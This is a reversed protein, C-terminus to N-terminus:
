NSAEQSVLMTQYIPKQTENWNFIYGDFVFRKMLNPSQIEGIPVGMLTILAYFNFRLYNKIIQWLGTEIEHTLQLTIHLLCISDFRHHHHTRCIKCHYDLCISQCEHNWQLRCGFFCERWHDCQDYSSLTAIFMYFILKILKILKRSHQDISGSCNEIEITFKLQVFGLTKIYQRQHPSKWKDSKTQQFLVFYFWFSIWIRWNFHRKPKVYESRM